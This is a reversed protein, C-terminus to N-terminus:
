SIKLYSNEDKPARSTIGNKTLQLFFGKGDNKLEYAYDKSAQNTLLQNVESQSMACWSKAHIASVISEGYDEMDKIIKNNIIKSIDAVQGLGKKIPEKVELNPAANVLEKINVENLPVGEYKKIINAKDEEGLPAIGKATNSNTNLNETNDKQISGENTKNETEMKEELKIYKEPNKECDVLEDWFNEADQLDICPIPIRFPADQEMTGYATYETATERKIKTNDHNIKVSEFLLVTGKKLTFERKLDIVRNEKSSSDSSADEIPSIGNKNNSVPKNSSADTEKYLLKSALETTAEAQIKLIETFAASKNVDNSESYKEILNNMENVFYDKTLVFSVKEKVTDAEKKTIAKKVPKDIKKEVHKSPKASARKKINNSKKIPTKSKSKPKVTAM